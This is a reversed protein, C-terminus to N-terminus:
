TSRRWGQEKATEAAASAAKQQEAPLADFVCRKGRRHGEAPARLCRRFADPLGMSRHERRDIDRHDHREGM